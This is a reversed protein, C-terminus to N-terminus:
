AHQTWAASEIWSRAWCCLEWVVMFPRSQIGRAIWRIRWGTADWFIAVSQWPHDSSVPAMDVIGSALTRMCCVVGDVACASTASTLAWPAFQGLLNIRQNGEWMFPQCRKCVGLLVFFSYGVYSRPSRIERALQLILGFLKDLRLLYARKRLQPM